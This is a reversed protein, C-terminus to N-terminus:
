SELAKRNAFITSWQFTHLNYQKTALKSHPQNWDLEAVMAFIQKAATPSKISFM